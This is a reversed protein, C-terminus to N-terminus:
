AHNDDSVRTSEKVGDHRGHGDHDAHSGCGGGRTHLWLFAGIGLIWLWNAALFEIM